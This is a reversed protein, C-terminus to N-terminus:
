NLNNLDVETVLAKREEDDPPDVVKEWEDRTLIPCRRGLNRHRQVGTRAVSDLSDDGRVWFGEPPTRALAMTSQKLRNSFNASNVAQHGNVQAWVRYDQYLSEARKSYATCATPAGTCIM